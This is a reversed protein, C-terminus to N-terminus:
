VVIMGGPYNIQYSEYNTSEGFVEISSGGEFILALGSKGVRRFATTMKGLLSLLSIVARIDKGEPSGTWNENYGWRSVSAATKCEVAEEISITVNEHFQLSIQFEGVGVQILTLGVLFGLDTGRDLEYM